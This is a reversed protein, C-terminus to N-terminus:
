RLRKIIHWGFPSATKDYESIGVEGPKLSFATNGFGAVMGDRPFEDPGPQIGRDAMRYIGPFQDDTYQKVLAGFDEGKKARELIDHALKRAEEQTRTIPKGRVSGQFGILVHQVEIHGAPLTDPTAPQAATSSASSAAPNQGESSTSVSQEEKKQCGMVLVAAVALALGPRMWRPAHSSRLNV